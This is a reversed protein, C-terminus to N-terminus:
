ASLDGGTADDVGECWRVWLQRYTRELSRTFSVGDCLRSHMMRSRLLTRLEALQPLHAAMKAAVQVYHQEDRAIWEALGVMSLLSAGVRGAHQSGTRTVVPVGMWLAECTTTTGSFPFPDLAIDVQNYADLSELPSRTQGLLELRDGSIGEAAFLQATRERALPDDLAPSKLLLRSHPVEKLVRAWVAVVQENLTLLGNFSGFTVQGRQLAPLTRVPPAATPPAFCLFGGPLRVLEERYNAEYGPPDAMGDTFRYDITPLGTTNPTGLYSIQIPAAREALAGLRTGCTHGALEILLDIEDQRITEILERDELAYVDRWNHTLQKAQATVADPCAAASYCVVEVQAPDHNALLPALFRFLAHDRLHPSLYGIRLRRQPDRSQPWEPLLSQDWRGQQDAWLFHEERVQESTAAPDHPLCDLLSCQAQAYSPQRAIAERYCQQAATLDGLLQYCAGLNHYAEALQPELAIAQRCSAIAESLRFQKRLAAGLNNHALAFTPRLAVACRCSAESETYKGMDLLVAGLHNHGDAETPALQVALQCHSLAEDLRGTRRLLNGLNSHAQAYNPQIQLAHRYCREAEALEGLAQHTEGLSHHYVPRDPKLAMATAIQQLAQQHQGTQHALVGLLHLADPHKPATRLVSHYGHAAEHLRGAQHHTIATALTEAVQGM